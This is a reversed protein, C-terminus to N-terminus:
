TIVCVLRCAQAPVAPRRSGRVAAGLLVLTAVAALSAGFLFAVRAGFTVWLAGFLLNAPLVTAGLVGHYLGYARGRSAAPAWDAILAREAGETAGYYMGYVIILVWAVWLSGAFPLTMYVVLYIAWGVLIAPFRGVRDAFRGGPLSLAIKALHLSIWLAVVHGLGLGFTTQVYLVIFLDTSNGLSFLGVAALFVYFTGPVSDGESPTGSSAEAPTGSRVEHVSRWLVVAAAIAPVLALAFVIRLARVESAAIEGDGVQWLVAGGLMAYLLLGAIVPGLVAGAHDMLRHFSFAIGRVDADVSEGILADRPSTRIGKGVRDLFRLAVVHWGATAAAVVPRAAGSLVYGALALPKRRGSADSLAGAYYKLFASVTEAVGDMIGVYIAASTGTVIGAFFAPLLPYIMESSVDTLFSVIGLGLINGSITRKVDSFVSSPEKM